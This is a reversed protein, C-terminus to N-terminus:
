RLLNNRRKHFAWDLAITQILHKHGVIETQAQKIDIDKEHVRNIIGMLSEAIDQLTRSKIESRLHKISLVPTNM